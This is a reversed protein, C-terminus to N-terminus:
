VKKKLKNQTYSSDFTRADYSSMHPIKTLLSTVEVFIQIKFEYDTETTM